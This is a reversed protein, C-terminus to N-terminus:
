SRIIMGAWVNSLAIIGQPLNLGKNRSGNAVIFDNLEDPFKEGVAVSVIYWNGPAYIIPRLDEEGSPLFEIAKTELVASREPVVIEFVSNTKILYDQM